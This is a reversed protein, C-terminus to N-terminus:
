ARCACPSADWDARTLVMCRCCMCACDALRAANLGPDGLLKPHSRPYQVENITMQCCATQHQGQCEQPVGPLAGRSGM